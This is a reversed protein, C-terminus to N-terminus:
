VCSRVHTPATLARVLQALWVSSNLQLLFLQRSVFTICVESHQHAPMARPSKSGNRAIDNLDAMCQSNSMIGDSIQRQKQKWQRNERELM